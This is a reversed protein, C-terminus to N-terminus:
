CLLPPAAELGITDNLLACRLVWHSAAPIMSCPFIWGYCRCFLCLAPCFFQAPGGSPTPPNFVQTRWYHGGFLSVAVRLGPRFRRFHSAMVLNKFVGSWEHVQLSAM